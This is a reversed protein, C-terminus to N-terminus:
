CIGMYHSLCLSLLLAKRAGPVYWSLFSSRYFWSVPAMGPPFLLWLKCKGISFGGLVWVDFTQLKGPVDSEELGPQSGETQRLVSASRIWIAVWIRTNLVCNLFEALLLQPQLHQIIGKVETVRCCVWNGGTLLSVLPFAHRRHLASFARPNPGGM